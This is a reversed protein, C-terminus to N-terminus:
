RGPCFLPVSRQNVGDVHARAANHEASCELEEMYQVHSPWLAERVFSPEEPVHNSVVAKIQAVSSTIGLRDARDQVGKKAEGPHSELPVRRLWGRLLDDSRLVVDKREAHRDDFM